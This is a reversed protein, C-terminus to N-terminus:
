EPCIVHRPRIAGAGLAPPCELECFGRLKLRPSAAGRPRDLDVGSVGEDNGIAFALAECLPYQNVLRTLDIGAARFSVLWVGDARRKLKVRTLGRTVADDRFAWRRGPEVEWVLGAALTVEDAALSLVIPETVPDMGDSAPAPTFRWRKVELGGAGTALDLTGRAPRVALTGTFDADIAAAPRVAGLASVFLLLAAPRM